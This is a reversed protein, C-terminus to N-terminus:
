EPRPEARCVIWRRVAAGLMAPFSYIGYMAFETPAPSHITPDAALEAPAGLPFCATAGAGLMALLRPPRLNSDPGGAAEREGREGV